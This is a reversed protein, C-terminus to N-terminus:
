EYGVIEVESNPSISIDRESVTKAASDETAAVVKREMPRIVARCDNVSVVKFVRDGDYKILMRPQLISLTKRRPVVPALVTEALPVIEADM